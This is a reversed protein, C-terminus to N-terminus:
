FSRKERRGRVHPRFATLFITAITLTGEGAQGGDWVVRNGGTEVKQEKLLLCQKTISSNGSLSMKNKNHEANAHVM